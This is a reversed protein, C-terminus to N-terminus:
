LPGQKIKSHEKCQDNGLFMHFWHFRTPQLHLPNTSTTFLPQACWCKQSTLKIFKQIKSEVKEQAQKVHLYLYLKLFNLASM